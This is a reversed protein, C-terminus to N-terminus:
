ALDDINYNAWILLGIGGGLSLLASLLPNGPFLYLDMLMWAGRWCAVIGIAALVTLYARRPAGTEQLWKLKQERWAAQRVKWDREPM